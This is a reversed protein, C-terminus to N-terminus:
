IYPVLNPPSYSSSKGIKGNELFIPNGNEDFKSWNSRNIEQMAPVIKLDRMYATGVATVVQDGLSDLFEVADRPFVSFGTKKTAKLADAFEHLASYAKALLHESECCEPTLSALCESVEEFHVGLQVIFDDATPQPKAAKFWDYTRQLETQQTM